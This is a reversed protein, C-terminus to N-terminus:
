LIDTNDITLKGRYAATSSRKILHTPLLTDSNGSGDVQSVLARMAFSGVERKPLRVTTLPVEFHRALPMDDFGIVSVDEPVRLGHSQLARMTCLALEDSVAVIATPRVPQAFLNFLEAYARDWDYGPLLVFRDGAPIGAEDLAKEFGALRQKGHPDTAGLYALRQHGLSLLHQTAMYGGQVQDVLIASMSEIEKYFVQIIPYDVFEDPEYRGEGPRAPLWIAGDVRGPLLQQLIKKELSFQGNTIYILCSYEMEMAVVQLGQVVEAVYSRSLDPIVLGFQFTTKKRLSRASVSPHYGMARAISLVRQRTAPSVKDKYTDNLARSATALSVGAARAVDTLNAM